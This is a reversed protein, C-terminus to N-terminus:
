ESRRWDDRGHSRSVPAGERHAEKAAAAGARLGLEGRRGNRSSSSGRAPHPCRGSQNRYSHRGSCAIAGVTRPDDGSLVKVAIGQTILYEITASVESRLEEELSVIGVPELRRPMEDGSLACPTRALLLVRAGGEALAALRRSVATGLTAAELVIEPAGLVWTGHDAFQAASWKRASSFPVRSEVLWGPPESLEAKLALMTSNPSADAAVIASLPDTIAEEGLSDMAALRMGPETLTGTKDICLVDVRALGEIAALEQVLVKRRALRIAGLAFALSTLLVLGEPVMAGIGAVCARLSEDLSQGSRVLQSTILLVGAPIMAWTVMRLITNTGQQLESRVVSFRRADGQIRQAYADTGVRVGEIRGAGAVVFSGSLVEGGVKKPVSAAEGTLMSEDVELHDSALVRGDVVVQDGPSLELVDGLVVDAVKLEVPVGDRIAHATPATLVALRELTRQARLEQAIGIATNVVLVVGFLGDQPPGVVAVVLLLSGLIANFRTFLNARLITLIPRAAQEDTANVQGKAVRQAVEAPSLGVEAHESLEVNDLNRVPEM